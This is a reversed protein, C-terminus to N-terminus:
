EDREFVDKLQEVAKKHLQCVRAETVGLIEGVQKLGMDQFYYLGVVQQLRQPLKGIAQVLALRLVEPPLKSRAILARLDTIRNDEFEVMRKEQVDRRLSQLSSLELDMREALELETPQRGLEHTLDRVAANMAKAKRRLSQSMPDRRRLEDLIAGRVRFEAFVHFARGGAPDYTKQAQLLGIIGVSYLDELDVVGGTSRTFRRALKRVLPSHKEVLEAPSLHAVGEPREKPVVLPEAAGYTRRLRRRMQDTKTNESM